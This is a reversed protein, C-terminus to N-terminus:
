NICFKKGRYNGATFERYCKDVRHYCERHLVSPTNIHLISSIHLRDLEDAQCVECYEDLEDDSM